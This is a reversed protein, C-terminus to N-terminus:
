WPDLGQLCRKWNADKSIEKGKSFQKAKPIANRAKSVRIGSQLARGAVRLGIRVAVGSFVRLLAMIAQFIPILCFPLCRVQLHTTLATTTPHPSHVVLDTTTTPPSEPNYDHRRFMSPVNEEHRSSRAEGSSRVVLENTTPIGAVTNDGDRKNVKVGGGMGSPSVYQSEITIDSKERGKEIWKYQYDESEFFSDTGEDVWNDVEKVSMGEPWFEMMQDSEVFEQDFLNDVENAYAGGM